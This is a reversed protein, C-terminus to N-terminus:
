KNPITKPQKLLRIFKVIASAVSILGVLSGCVLTVTELTTNINLLYAAAGTALSGAGGWMAPFKELVDKAQNMPPLM